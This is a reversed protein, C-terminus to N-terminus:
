ERELRVSVEASTLTTEKGEIEAHLAGKEDVFLLKGEKESDAFLLKVTRGIYGVRSIYESVDVDKELEQVLRETVTEVDFRKGTEKEMTTAIGTLEEPLPNYVNLGVGIISSAIQNGSFVNEILIGCIKKDSVFVDNAWKIVPSLGFAELTRCVAVSTKAMIKFADRASFDEYFVLKTLYVGGEESSFSRGKTGRGGTQRLATVVVNEGNARLSKAYLNTSDLEAFRIRKTQGKEKM